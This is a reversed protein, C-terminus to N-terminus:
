KVMLDDLSLSISETIGYDYVNVNSQFTDRRFLEFRLHYGGRM